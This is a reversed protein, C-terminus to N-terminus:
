ETHFYKQMPALLASVPQSAASLINLLRMVAVLASDAYYVASKGQLRFYYHGSLEGGCLADIQRMTQKVHSHGVRSRVPEGGAQAIVERVVKSSRLDYTVPRGAQSALADQALLATILDCGIPQGLEDIIAVRDGDGDFCFGIDAKKDKVLAIVDRLNKEKLPDAEHNPFTGDPQLYIGLLECPLRDFLAPIFKGAMGNSADVAVRLPRLGKAMGALFDIYNEDLNATAGTGAPVDPAPDDLMKEVQNLGTDYSLPIALERTVKFGTYQAPNHSATCMVGGDAGLQEVGFYM